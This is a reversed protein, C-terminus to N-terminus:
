AKIELQIGINGMSAAATNNARQQLIRQEGKGPCTM